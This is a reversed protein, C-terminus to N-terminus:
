GRRPKGERMNISVYSASDGLTPWAVHNSDLIVARTEQRRCKNCVDRDSYSLSW